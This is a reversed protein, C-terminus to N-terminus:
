ENNYVESESIRKWVYVNIANTSQALDAIIGSKSSNTTIGLTKSSPYSWSPTTGVASGFNSTGFKINNLNSDTVSALVGSNQNDTFGLSIGNGIVPAINGLPMVVNEAIISWCGGFREAPSVDGKANMYITDLPYSALVGKDDVILRNNIAVNNM